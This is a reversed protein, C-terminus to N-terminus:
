GPAGVWRAWCAVRPTPVAASLTPSSAVLLIRRGHGPWCRLNRDRPPMPLRGRAPPPRPRPLRARSPARLCSAPPPSWASPAACRRGLQNETGGPGPRAHRQRTERRQSRALALPLGVNKDIFGQGRGPTEDDRAGGREQSGPKSLGRGNSRRVDGSLDERAQANKFAV